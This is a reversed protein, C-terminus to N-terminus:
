VCPASNRASSYLSFALYQVIAHALDAKDAMRRLFFPTDKPLSGETDRNILPTKLHLGLKGLCVITYSVLM